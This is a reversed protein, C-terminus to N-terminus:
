SSPFGPANPVQDAQWVHRREHAAIVHFATGVRVRVISIFPNVFTARNVDIPAADEILRRMLAHGDRYAHMIHDRSASARPVIKKPAKGRRKVPPEMSNVFWTGFITSAIPSSRTWGRARADDIAARMREGYVHAATALHDVCQGISWGAGGLPQWHFQRDSLRSVLAEVRRETDAIQALVAELDSPLIAM